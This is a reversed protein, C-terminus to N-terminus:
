AVGVSFVAEHAIAKVELIDLVEAPPTPTSTPKASKIKSENRLHAAKNQRYLNLRQAFPVPRDGDELYINPDWGPLGKRDSPLQTKSQNAHRDGNRDRM